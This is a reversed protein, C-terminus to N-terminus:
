NPKAWVDLGNKAESADDFTLNEGAITQISEHGKGAILVIDESKAAAIAEMIALRRDLVIHYASGKKAGAEKFGEEIERAIAMPEESRPNDNTIWAKDAYGSVIRGM